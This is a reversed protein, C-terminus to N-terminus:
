FKFLFALTPQVTDLEYQADSTVGASTSQTYKISRYSIQPGVFISQSVGAMYALDVQFGTGKKYQTEVGSTTVDRTGQLFYTGVIALGGSIFGVSPGISTAKIKTDLGSGDEYKYMGGIYLGSSMSVWGLRGDGDILKTDTTKTGGVKETQTTYGLGPFFVIDARAAAPAVLTLAATLLATATVLSNRISRAVSHSASSHASNDASPTAPTTILSESLCNMKKM